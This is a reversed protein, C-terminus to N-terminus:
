INELVEGIKTEILEIPCRNVTIIEEEKKAEAVFQKQIGFPM